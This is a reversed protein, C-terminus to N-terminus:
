QLRGVPRKNIIPYVHTYSYVTEGLARKVIIFPKVLFKIAMNNNCNSTLVSGTSSPNIDPTSLVSGSGSRDSRELLHGASVSDGASIVSRHSDERM